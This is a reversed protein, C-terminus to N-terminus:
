NQHLKNTKESLLFFNVLFYYSLVQTTIQVFDLIAFSLYFKHIIYFSDSFYFFICTIVLNIHAKNNSRFYTVISILMLFSLAVGYLVLISFNTGIRDFKLDLIFYTLVALATSTLLILTLDDSYRWKIKLFNPLLYFILLLYAILFCLIEVFTHASPCILIYIDGLYCSLLVSSLLINIKYNSQVFYFYSIAPVIAVKSWLMGERFGITNSLITFLCSFFYLILAIKSKM